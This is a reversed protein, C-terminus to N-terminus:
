NQGSLDFAKSTPKIRPPSPNTDVRILDDEKLQRLIPVIEKGIGEEVCKKRLISLTIGTESQKLLALLRKKM